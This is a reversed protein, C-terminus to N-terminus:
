IWACGMKLYCTGRAGMLRAGKDVGTASALCEEGEETRAGARGWRGWVTHCLGMCLQEAAQQLVLLNRGLLCVVIGFTQVTVKGWCGVIVRQLEGPVGDM